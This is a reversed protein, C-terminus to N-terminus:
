VKFESVGYKPVKIAPPIGFLSSPDMGIWRLLSSSRASQKVPQDVFLRGSGFGPHRGSGFGPHRGSGFGPHARM